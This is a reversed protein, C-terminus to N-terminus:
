DGDEKYGGEPHKFATTLDERPRKKEASFLGLDELREESTRDRLGQVIHPSRGKWCTQMKLCGCSSGTLGFVASPDSGKLYGLRSQTKNALLACRQSRNLKPDVGGGLFSTGM